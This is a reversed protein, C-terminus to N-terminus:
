GAFFWLFLVLFTKAFADKNLFVAIKLIESVSVVRPVSVPIEERIVPNSWALSVAAAAVLSPRFNLMCYEQLIREMYYAALSEVATDTGNTIHLFRQLFPYGTPVSIKFRLVNVISAEM